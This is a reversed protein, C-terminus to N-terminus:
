RLRDCLPLPSEPSSVLSLARAGCVADVVTCFSARAFRSFLFFGRVELVVVVPVLCRGITYVHAKSNTTINYNSDAYKQQVLQCSQDARQRELSKPVDQPRSNTLTHACTGGSTTQQTQDNNTGKSVVTLAQRRWRAGLLLVFRCRSIRGLCVCPLPLHLRLAPHYRTAEQM